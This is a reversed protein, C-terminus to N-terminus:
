DQYIGYILNAMEHADRNIRIKERAQRLSDKAILDLTEITQAIEEDSMKDAIKGLIKRAEIVSVIM